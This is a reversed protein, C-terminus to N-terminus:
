NNTNTSHQNVSQGNIYVNGHGESLETINHINKAVHCDKLDYVTLFCSLNNKHQEAVLLYRKSPSLKMCTIQKVHEPIMIFNMKSINTSKSGNDEM